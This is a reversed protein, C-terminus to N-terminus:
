EIDKDGDKKFSPVPYTDTMLLLLRGYENHALNLELKMALYVPDEARERFLKGRTTWQMARKYQGKKEYGDAKAECKHVQLYVDTAVDDITTARRMMGVQTHKYYLTSLM